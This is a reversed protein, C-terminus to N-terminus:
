RAKEGLKNRGRRLTRQIHRYMRFSAESYIGGAEWLVEFLRLANYFNKHFFFYHALYYIAEFLSKSSNRLFHIFCFYSTNKEFIKKFNKLFSNSDWKDHTGHKMNDDLQAKGLHPYKGVKEDELKSGLSVRGIRNLRRMIKMKNLCCKLYKVCWRFCENNKEYFLFINKNSREKESGYAANGEEAEEGIFSYGRNQEKLKSLYILFLMSAFFPDKKFVWAKKLTDIYSNVDGKKLYISSLHFYFITSEQFNIAQEYSFISFRYNEKWEFCKALSFWASPNNFYLSIAKTLIGISSNVNGCSFYEQALAMYSFMDFKNRQIGEKFCLISKRRNNCLSFYKGMIYCLKYDYKENRSKGTCEGKGREYDRLLILLAPLNNECVLMNVLLELYIFRNSFYEPLLFMKMDICKKASIIQACQQCNGSTQPGRKGKKGRRERRQLYRVCCSELSSRELIINRRCIRNMKHFCKMSKKTEGCYYYLKALECSVYFNNPLIEKLHKYIKISDKYLLCNLSCFHAFGFLSMLNRKFRYRKLYGQYRQFFTLCTKKNRLKTRRSYRERLECNEKRQREEWPCQDKEMTSFVRSVFYGSRFFFSAGSYRLPNMYIYRSYHEAVDLLDGKGIQFYENRFLHSCLKKLKQSNERFRKKEECIFKYSSGCIRRGGKPPNRLLESESRGMKCERSSGGTFLEISILNNFLVWAVFNFYDRRISKRVYLLSKHFIKLDYFVVSLLLCLHTDLKIIKEVKRFYKVMYMLIERKLSSGISVAQTMFNLENPQFRNTHVKAFINGCLSLMKNEGFSYAYRYLCLMKLFILLNTDVKTKRRVKHRNKVNESLFFSYKTKDNKRGVSLAAGHPVEESLNDSPKYVNSGCPVIEYNKREMSESKSRTNSPHEYPTIINGGRICSSREMKEKGGEDTGKMGFIGNELYRDCWRNVDNEYRIFKYRVMLIRKKKRERKEEEKKKKKVNEMYMRLTSGKDVIKERKQNAFISYEKSARMSISNKKGKRQIKTKEKKKLIDKSCPSNIKQISRISRMLFHLNYNKREFYNERLIDEEGPSSFSYVSILSLKMYAEKYKKEHYLRVVEKYTPFPNVFLRKKVYGRNVKGRRGRGGGKSLESLWTSNHNLCRIKYVMSKKLLFLKFRKIHLLTENVPAKSRLRERRNIGEGRIIGTSRGGDALYPTEAEKELNRGVEEATDSRVSKFSNDYKDFSKASFFANSLSISRRKEKGNKNKGHITKEGSLKESETSEVEDYKRKRGSSATSCSRMEKPM